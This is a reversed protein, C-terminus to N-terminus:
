RSVVWKLLAPLKEQSMAKSADTKAEPPMVGTSAMGYAMWRRESSQKALKYTGDPMVHALRLNGQLKETAGHCRMCSVSFAAIVPKAIDDSTENDVGLDPLKRVGAPAVPTVPQHQYAPGPQHQYAPAPAAGGPANMFNRLEERVVDRLMAKQQYSEQVSWYHNVGYAQIPIAKYEIPVTVILPAVFIEQAIVKQAPYYNYYNHDCCPYAHSQAFNANGGRLVGRRGRGQADDLPWAFISASVLAVTLLCLRSM